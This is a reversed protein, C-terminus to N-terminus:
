APIAETEGEQGSKAVVLKETQSQNASALKSTPVSPLVEQQMKALEEEIAQEDEESIVANLAQEVEHQYAIGAASDDMIREVDDISVEANIAKLTDAGHKLGRVIDQQIQAFEISELLEELSALQAFSKELLQSQFKEKRLFLLARKRNGAALSQKALEREKQEVLVLRKQYQKVKDRQLKLDLVAKDKSSVKSSGGGGLLWSSWGM